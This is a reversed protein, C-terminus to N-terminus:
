RVDGLARRLAQRAEYAERLAATFAQEVDLYRRQATLVDFVTARGLEYTQGVVTLNQRSLGRIESTYVAVAQRAREDRVRAGAIETEATLRAADLQASAEARQAGAAAVSGQSRDRLPLTVAAGASVYHFVSRIPELGGSSGIGQQPFGANMRMYMGFLNIDVRGERKAREIEADAVLVRAGAAEVDPRTPNPAGAPPLM